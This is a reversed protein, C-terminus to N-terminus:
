PSSKSPLPIEPPWPIHTANAADPDYNPSAPNHVNRPYLDARVGAVGEASIEVLQTM